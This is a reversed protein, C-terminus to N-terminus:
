HEEAIYSICESYSVLLVENRGITIDHFTMLIFTWLNMEGCIMLDMM